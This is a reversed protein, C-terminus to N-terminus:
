AKFGTKIGRVMAKKMAGGKIYTKYWDLEATIRSNGAIRKRQRPAGGSIDGRLTPRSTDRTGKKVVKGKPDARKDRRPFNPYNFKGEELDLAYPAYPQINELTFKKVRRMESLTTSLNPVDNITYPYSGGAWGSAGKGIPVAIWSNKFTGDWEPGKEALDNMVEVATHRALENVVELLDRSMKKLQKGPAAAM